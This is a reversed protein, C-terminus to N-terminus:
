HSTTLHPCYFTQHCYFHFNNNSDYLGLGFKYVGIANQCHVELTCPAIKRVANDTCVSIQIVTSIKVQKLLRNTTQYAEVQQSYPIYENCTIATISMRIKNCPVIGKRDASRHHIFFPHWVVSQFLLEKVSGTLHPSMVHLSPM